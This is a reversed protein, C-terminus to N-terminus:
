FKLYKEYEQPSMSAIFKDHENLSLFEKNKKLFDVSDKSKEEKVGSQPRKAQETSPKNNNPYKNPNKFSRTPPKKKNTTKTFSQQSTITSDLTKTSLTSTNSKASELNSRQSRLETLYLKEELEKISDGSENNNVRNAILNARVARL